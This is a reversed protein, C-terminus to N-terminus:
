HHMHHSHDMMQKKVPVELKISDGNELKLDLTAQDGAKLRKVPNFLMIHHSGAKLVLKGKAPITLTSMHEMKAMDGENKTQHFSIRKFSESTASVVKVTQDSSNNIEMYAAMVKSSPPAEAIWAGDFSLSSGAAASHSFFLAAFLLSILSHLKM